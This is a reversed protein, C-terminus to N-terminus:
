RSQVGPPLVTWPSLACAVAARSTPSGLSSVDVSQVKVDDCPFHAGVPTHPTILSTGWPRALTLKGLMMPLVTPPLCFRQGEEKSLLQGEQALLAWGRSLAGNGPSIVRRSKEHPAGPRTPCM